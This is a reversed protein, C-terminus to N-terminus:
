VNSVEIGIEDYYHYITEASKRWYDSLLEGRVDLSLISVNNFRIFCSYLVTSFYSIVMHPMVHTRDFFCEAGVGLEKIEYGIKKILRIKKQSEDRHPIYYIKCSSYKKFTKYLIDLETEMGMYNRESFKSGFFYIENNNISVDKKFSGSEYYNVQKDVLALDFFSYLNPHKENKLLSSFRRYKLKKVKKEFPFINNKIFHNQATITFAGDDLLIKEQPQLVAGILAMNFDRYEGFFFRGIKGAYRKKLAMLRVYQFFDKVIVNKKKHFIVDMWDNHDILSMMQSDNNLRDGGSLCVLLVKERDNFKKAASIASSLQLPSQVCFFDFM